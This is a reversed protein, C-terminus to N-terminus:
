RTPWACHAQLRAAAQRQPLRRPGQLRYFLDNRTPDYVVAQQVQGRYALAISVAYVPLGHIFNTTGDLPDIIWVYESDKAGRARGSEEALIGHGPYAALLTDIIVRRPRRTSRPSSTTRRRPTSRSCTSTSRPGTSSRARGRTGGQHRHQADPAASAVHAVQRPRHPTPRRSSLATPAPRVGARSRPAAASLRSKLRGGHRGMSGRRGSVRKTRSPVLWGPLTPAAARAIFTIPKASRTSTAGRWARRRRADPPAPSPWRRSRCGRAARTTGVSASASSPM